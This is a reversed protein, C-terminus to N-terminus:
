GETMKATKNRADPINKTVLSLKVSPDEKPDGQVPLAACSNRGTASFISILSPKM